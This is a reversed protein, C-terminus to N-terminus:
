RCPESSDNLDFKVEITAPIAATQGNKRGPRFRWQKVADVANEALGMGLAKLVKIHVPRGTPSVEVYLLVKGELHARRAEATYRPACRTLLEPPQNLLDPQATVLATYALVCIISRM